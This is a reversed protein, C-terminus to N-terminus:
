GRRMADGVGFKESPEQHPGVVAFLCSLGHREREKQSSWVRTNRVGRPVDEENV